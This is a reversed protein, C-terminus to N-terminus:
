MLMDELRRAATFFAEKAERAFPNEREIAMFLEDSDYRVFEVAQDMLEYTKTTLQFRPLKLAVIVKALMHTLGHVYALERDHKEPTVYFVRLKLKNKLFDGVCTARKGRVNCVAINLGQIGKKGSQPGFLPHTGVIDVHKPLFKKMIATPKVKVSAVDLVLTGKQLLPAIEQLVTEIQQVPVAVVIIKCGAIKKLDGVFTGYKKATKTVSKRADFLTLDFHPALHKAM